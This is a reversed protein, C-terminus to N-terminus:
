TMPAMLSLLLSGFALHVVSHSSGSMVISLPRRYFDSIVPLIKEEARAVESQYISDPKLVPFDFPAIIEGHKWESGINYDYNLSAHRPFLLAILGIVVTAFLYISTKTAKRFARKLRSNM